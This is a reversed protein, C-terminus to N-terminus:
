FFVHFPLHGFVNFFRSFLTRFLQLFPSFFGAVFRAFFTVWFGADPVEGPFFAGWFAGPRFRQSLLTRLFAGRRGGGGQFGLGAQVVCGAFGKNTYKYFAQARVRRFQGQGKGM